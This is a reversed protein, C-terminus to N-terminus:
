FKCAGCIAMNRRSTVTFGILCLAGRETGTKGAHGKGSFAPVFYFHGSSVTGYSGALAPIKHPASGRATERRGIKTEFFLFSLGIANKIYFMQKLFALTKKEQVEIQL